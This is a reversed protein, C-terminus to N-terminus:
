LLRDFEEQPIPKSYYYGQAYECGISRLFEVHEKTEVGECVVELNLKKAMEIVSPIVIKEESDNEFDRLFEKDIKLIDLPLKTLVNLSSYGSGFDDLSVKVGLKRLRSLLTISDDVKDTFSTETLEFELYKPPINYKVLLGKIKTIFEDISYLHVRSVNVSIAVTKKGSELREKLYRCVEEYVYFDLQTVSKNREFVPIFDNPYIISGDKKKWRVLAEAGKIEDNALLVRPQMYVVFERNEFAKEMDNSYAVENMAANGMNEDYFMLNPMGPLKTRKRAMNANSIINNLMIPAGSITFMSVGVGVKISSNLFRKALISTQKTIAEELGRKFTEEDRSGLKALAVINDSFVRSALVINESYSQVAQAIEKLVKDGTEYGYTDNVFKFNFVDLYIIAYNGHEANAIYEGAHELFREYKYLGTVNDYGALREVTATAREYAKMKLLYSSVVNAINRINKLEDDTWKRESGFDIFEMVGVFSGKDYFACGALSEIGYTIMFLRSIEDKADDINENVVIGDGEEFTRMAENWQVESYEFISGESISDEDFGCHYLNRLAATGEIKEWILIADIGMQRVIQRILLNIASDTDKSEEILKFAREILSDSPHTRSSSTEAIRSNRARIEDALVSYVNEKISNYIDYHNPGKSRALDLAKEAKEFLESYSSGDRPFLSAGISVTCKHRTGEGIYTDSIINQIDKIKKEIDRIQSIDKMFVVFENSGIRGVLDTTFLMEKVDEAINKLIEEGFAIGMDDIIKDYDDIDIVLMGAQKSEDESNSEIYEDIFQNIYPRKYLKTLPDRMKEDALRIEMKKAEDINEFTGVVKDPNGEIDFIVRGRIRHWKFDDNKQGEQRLRFEKDVTGLGSRCEVMLEDFKYWDTFPVYRQSKAVSSINCIYYEKGYTGKNSTTLMLTDSTIDYEFIKEIGISVVSQFRDRERNIEFTKKYQALGIMYTCLILFAASTFLLILVVVRNRIDYADNDKFICNLINASWILVINFNFHLSFKVGGYAISTLMMPLAVLGLLYSDISFVVYLYMLAFFVYLAIGAKQSSDYRKIVASGIIWPVFLMLFFAIPTYSVAVDMNDWFYQIGMVSIILCSIFYCLLSLKNAKATESIDNKRIFKPLIM